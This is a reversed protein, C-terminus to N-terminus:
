CEAELIAADPGVRRVAAVTLLEAGIQLTDGKALAPLAARPVRVVRSGARVPVGFGTSDVDPVDLLVTVPTATGTGGARWTAAVGFEEADFMGLLDAASEVPM